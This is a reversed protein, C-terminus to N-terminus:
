EDLGLRDSIRKSINFIDLVAANNEGVFYSQVAKKLSNNLDTLTDQFELKGAHSIIYNYAGDSLPRISSQWPPTANKRVKEYGLSEVYKSESLYIPVKNEFKRCKLLEAYYNEGDNCTIRGIEGTGFYYRQAKDYRNGQYYIFTDGEHIQNRYRKPYHYTRFLDDSYSSEEDVKQSLIILMIAGRFIECNVLFDWILIM